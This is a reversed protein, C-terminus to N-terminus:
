FVMFQAVEHFGTFSRAHVARDDRASRADDNSRVIIACSPPFGSEVEITAGDSWIV